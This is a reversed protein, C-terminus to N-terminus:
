VSSEIATKLVARWLIILTCVNKMIKERVQFCFYCLLVGWRNPASYLISQPSAIWFNARLSNMISIYNKLRKWQWKAAPRSSLSEDISLFFHRENLQLCWYHWAHSILLILQSYHSSLLRYNFGFMIVNERGSESKTNKKSHNQLVTPCTPFSHAWIQSHCFRSVWLSFFFVWFQRLHSKYFFWQRDSKERREKKLTNNQEKQSDDHFLEFENPVVISSWNWFAVNHRFLGSSKLYLFVKRM